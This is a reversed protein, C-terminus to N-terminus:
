FSSFELYFNGSLLLGFAEGRLKEADGLFIPSCPRSSPIIIRSGSTSGRPVVLCYYRRVADVLRM